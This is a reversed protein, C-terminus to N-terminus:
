GHQDHQSSQEDSLQVPSRVAPGQFVRIVPIIQQDQRDDVQEPIGQEDDQEPAAAQMAQEPECQTGGEKVNQKENGM